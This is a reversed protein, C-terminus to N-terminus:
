FMHSRKRELAVLLEMLSLSKPNLIVSSELDYFLIEIYLHRLSLHSISGRSSTKSITIVVVM